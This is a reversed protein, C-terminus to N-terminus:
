AAYEAWRAYEARTSFKVEVTTKNPFNVFQPVLTLNEAYLIELTPPGHHKNGPGDISSSSGGRLTVTVKKGLLTDHVSKLLLGTQVPRLTLLNFEEGTIDKFYNMASMMNAGDCIWVRRGKTQAPAGCATIMEAIASQNFPM